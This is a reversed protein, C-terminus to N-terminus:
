RKYYQQAEPLYKQIDQIRRGDDPHTSMFEPPTQGEKAAAMRQWFAIASEPNYGAMAM